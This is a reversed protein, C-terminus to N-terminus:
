KAYVLSLPSYVCVFINCKLLEVFVIRRAMYGVGSVWKGKMRCACLLFQMDSFPKGKQGNNLM